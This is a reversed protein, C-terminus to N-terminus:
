PLSCTATLDLVYDCPHNPHTNFILEDLKSTCGADEVYAIEGKADCLLVSSNKAEDQRAKLVYGDLASLLRPNHAVAAELLPRDALESAPNKYRVTTHVPASLKTLTDALGLLQEQDPQDAHLCSSFLLTLTSLIAINLMKTNM